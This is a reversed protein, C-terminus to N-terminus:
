NARPWNSRSRLPRAAWKYKRKAKRKQRRRERKILVRDPYQAGDGKVNTKLRHAEVERYILHDVSNAPPDYITKKGEGKRKRAALPPHHDLHLKGGLLESLKKLLQNLFAGLGGQHAEIADDIWLEGLQKLAVRCKVEVPITPRYLKM